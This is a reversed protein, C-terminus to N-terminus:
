VDHCGGERCAARGDELGAKWTTVEGSESYDTYRVAGNFDLTDAGPVDKLLPFVTEVFAENVTYEGITAKYNGAFFASLDSSCVDSSWYSIRLEYATKQNFFFICVGM